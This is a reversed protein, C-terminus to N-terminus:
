CRCFGKDSCRKGSRSACPGIPDNREDITLPTLFSDRLSASEISPDKFAAQISEIRLQASTFDSMEISEAMTARILNLDVYASCALLMEEDLNRVARYRGQFFKKVERDEKNARTGINQCLL